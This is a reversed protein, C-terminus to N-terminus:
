LVKYYTYSLPAGPRIQSPTHAAGGVGRVGAAGAQAALEEGDERVARVGGSALRPRHLHSANM